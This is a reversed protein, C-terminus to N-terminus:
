GLPSSLMTDKSVGVINASATWGAKLGLYLNSCNILAGCLCGVVLARITLINGDSPPIDRFPEFPDSQPDDQNAILSEDRMVEDLRRESSM